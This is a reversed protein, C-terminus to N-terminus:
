KLIPVPVFCDINTEIRFNSGSGTGTTPSQREAHFIDMRYTNGATLGLTDFNISATLPQHQGGLDLVLKDNVYIWLDDDGRFTFNQGAVYAFEVHIETTFHFNHAKGPTNGFGRDDIPFFESSDFVGDTLPLVDEIEMNVGEVTNFWSAFSAADKISYVMADNAAGTGCTKVSELPTFDWKACGQFQCNGLAPWCESAPGVLRKQRGIRGAPMNVGDNADYAGVTLVPKRDPGLTPVVLECGIDNWGEFPTEQGNGNCVGRASAEFDPHGGPEDFGKFDRYLVPLVKGCEDGSGGGGTGNGLGGGTGPLTGTAGTGIIPGTSGTGSGTSGSGQGPGLKRGDSDESSCAYAGFVLVALPVLSLTRLSM